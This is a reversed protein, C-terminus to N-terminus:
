GLFIIHKLKDMYKLYFISVIKETTNKCNIKFVIMLDILLIRIYM